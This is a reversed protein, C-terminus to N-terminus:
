LVNDWDTCTCVKEITLNQIPMSLLYDYSRGSTDEISDQTPPGTLAQLRLAAVDVSCKLAFDHRIVGQICWQLLQSDQWAHVKHRVTTSLAWQQHVIIHCCVMPVLGNAGAPHAALIACCTIHVVANCHSSEPWPLSVTAGRNPMKDFGDSVLQEEIVARKRNSIKLKGAVVALIFRTKNNCRMQEVGAAQVCVFM